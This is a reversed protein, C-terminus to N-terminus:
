GSSVSLVYNGFSSVLKGTKFKGRCKGFNTWQLIVDFAVNNWRKCFNRNTLLFNLSLIKRFKDNQM